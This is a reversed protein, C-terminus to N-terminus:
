VMDCDRAVRRAAWGTQVFEFFAVMFAAFAKPFGLVDGLIWYFRHQIYETICYWHVCRGGMFVVRLGCIGMLGASGNM